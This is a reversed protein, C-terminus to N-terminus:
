SNLKNFYIKLIIVLINVLSDRERIGSQADLTLAFVQVDRARVCSAKPASRITGQCSSRLM